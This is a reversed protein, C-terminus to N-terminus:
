VRAPALIEQLPNIVIRSLRANAGWRSDHIARLRRMTPGTLYSDLDERKEVEYLIAYQAWEVPGSDVRSFVGRIFGESKLVEPVIEKAMHAAWETEIDPKVEARVLYFVSM